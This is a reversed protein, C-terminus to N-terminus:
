ATGKGDATTARASQLVVHKRLRQQLQRYYDVLKKPDHGVSVSIQHRADRIAAIAPDDTVTSM